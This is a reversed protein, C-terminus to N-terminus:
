KEEVITNWNHTDPEEGLQIARLKNYLMESIPGAKQADGRSLDSLAFDIGSTRDVAMSHVAIMEAHVTSPLQILALTLLCCFMTKKFM